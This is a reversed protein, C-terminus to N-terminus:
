QVQGTSELELEGPGTTAGPTSPTINRILRGRCHEGVNYKSINRTSVVTTPTTASVLPEGTWPDFSDEGDENRVAIHTDAIAEGTWPDFNEEVATSSVATGGIEQNAEDEEDLRGKWEGDLESTTSESDASSSVSTFAGRRSILISPKSSQPVARLYSTIVPLATVIGAYTIPFCLLLLELHSIDAATGKNRDTLMQESLEAQRCNFLSLMVLSSLCITELLQETPKRFPKFAIHTALILVNTAAIAMAQWFPAFSLFSNISLLSLRRVLIVCEWHRCEKVFPGELVNLVAIQTSTFRHRSNEHKKRIDHQWFWLLAPFPAIICLFVLVLVIQWAQYCKVNADVFLRFPHEV